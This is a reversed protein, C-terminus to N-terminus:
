VRLWCGAGSWEGFDLVTVVEAVVSLRLESDPVDGTFRLGIGLWHVYGTTWRFLKRMCCGVDRRGGSDILVFLSLRGM